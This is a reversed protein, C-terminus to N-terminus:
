YRSQMGTTICCAFEFHGRLSVSLPIALLRKELDFGITKNRHKKFIEFVIKLAATMSSCPLISICQSISTSNM